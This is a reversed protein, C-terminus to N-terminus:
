GPLSYMQLPWTHDLVCELASFTKGFSWSLNRDDICDRWSKSVERCNTLSKNDLKKFIQEAVHAFGQYFVSPNLFSM